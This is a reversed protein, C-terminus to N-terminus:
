FLSIHRIRFECCGNHLMTVNVTLLGGRLRFRVSLLLFLIRLLGARGLPLANRGRLLVDDLAGEFALLCVVLFKLYKVNIIQHYCHAWLSEIKSFKSARQTTLIIDITANQVRRM